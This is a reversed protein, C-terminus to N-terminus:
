PVEPAVTPQRRVSVRAGDDLYAAGRTVVWDGPVVGDTIAVLDGVIRGIRILRRAARDGGPAVVFVHASDGDAEVLAELPLAAVPAEARTRIEVRGILGSALSQARPDLSLEVDYTGSASSAASALQTVRAPYREGPLADFRVEGEDGLRVRVADRDPLGARLVVARRSSRVLLIPTGPSVVQSPEAMRRLVVGDSPARVVAHEQSFRAIRLDQEAVVLATTADQLQETTAISDAHLATVRALDRAAKLRGQEAKAVESGIQVPTLEALLEGQRVISGANVLIRSVVGGITFALPVEEKGGLSGTAIVPPTLSRRAVQELEVPIARATSDVVSADGRRCAGVSGLLLLAVSLIRWRRHEVSRTWTPASPPSSPCTM